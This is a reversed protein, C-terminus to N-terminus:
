RVCGCSAPIRVPFLKTQKSTMNVGGYKNLAPRDPNQLLSRGQATQASELAEAEAAYIDGFVQENICKVSTVSLCLVLITFTRQQLLARAPLM